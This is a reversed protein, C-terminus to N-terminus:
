KLHNIISGSARIWVYRSLGSDRQDSFKPAIRYRLKVRGTFGGGTIYDICYISFSEGKDNIKAFNTNFSNKAKLLYEENNKAKYM